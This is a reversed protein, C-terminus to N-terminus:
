CRCILIQHLDEDKGATQRTFVAAPPTQHFHCKLEWASLEQGPFSVRSSQQTLKKLLLKIKKELFFHSFVCYLKQLDFAHLQAPEVEQQLSHGVAHVLFQFTGGM